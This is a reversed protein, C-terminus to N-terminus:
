IICKPEPCRCLIGERIFDWERYDIPLEEGPDIDRAAIVIVRDQVKTNAKCSHNIYDVGKFGGIAVLGLMFNGFRRMQLVQRHEWPTNTYKETLPDIELVVIRGAYCGILDGAGIAKRAFLGFQNKDREQVEAIVTNLYNVGSADDHVKM